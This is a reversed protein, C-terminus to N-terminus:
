ISVQASKQGGLGNVILGSIFVLTCFIVLIDIQWLVTLWLFFQFTHKSARIHGRCIMLLMSGRDNVRWPTFSINIWWGDMTLFYELLWLNSIPRGSSLNDQMVYKQVQRGIKSEFYLVGMALFILPINKVGPCNARLLGGFPGVTIHDFIWFLELLSGYARGWYYTDKSEEHIHWFLQGLHNIRWQSCGNEPFVWIARSTHWFTVYTLFSWFSSIDWLDM